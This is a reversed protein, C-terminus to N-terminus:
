GAFKLNSVNTDTWLVQEILVIELQLDESDDSVSVSFVYWVLDAGPESNSLFGWCIFILLPMCVVQFLAGGRVISQDVQDVEQWCMVM